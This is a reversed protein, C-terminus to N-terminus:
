AFYFGGVRIQFNTAIDGVSANASNTSAGTRIPITLYNVGGTPTQANASVIATTMGTISGISLSQNLQSIGSANTPLTIRIDNGAVGLGTKASIAIRIQVFVLDGIQIYRGVREIYNGSNLNNGGSDQLVPNYSIPSTFNNWNVLENAVSASVSTRPPNGFTMVDTSPNYTLNTDVLQPLNGTTASVFTPYFTSNTASATIATNTANTANTATDANGQLAGIFTTATLADISPQYNAGGKFSIYGSNLIFLSDDNGTRFLIEGGVGKGEITLTTNNQGSFTTATITGISPNCSLSANKQPKGYGTGASDSFNLYHTTNATTNITQIQGSWKDKDLTNTTIGDSLQITDNIKLTTANPPLEISEFAQQILAIRELATTYNNIGDQWNIGSKLISFTKPNPTNKDYQLSLGITSTNVSISEDIGDDKNFIFNLNNFTNNESM